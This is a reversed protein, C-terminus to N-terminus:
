LNKFFSIKLPQNKSDLIISIVDLSLKYDYLKKKLLYYDITKKLHKLKYFNVAEYPQGFRLSKRTKVEIFHLINNKKAIIDVEGFPSRFNKKIIM